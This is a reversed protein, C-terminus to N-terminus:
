SEVCAVVCCANNKGSTCYTNTPLSSHGPPPANPRHPPPIRIRPSSVQHRLHARHHRARARHRLLRPAARPVRHHGRAGLQARRHDHVPQRCCLACVSVSVRTYCVIVVNPYYLISNDTSLVNIIPPMALTAFYRLIVSVPEYSVFIVTRKKSYRLIVM